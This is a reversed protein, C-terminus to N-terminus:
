FHEVKNPNKVTHLNKMQRAQAPFKNMGHFFFENDRASTDDVNVTTKTCETEM